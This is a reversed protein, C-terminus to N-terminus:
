TGECDGTSRGAALDGLAAEFAAGEDPEMFLGTLRQGEVEDFSLGSLQECARNFRAIRGDPHLVVVLVGVTDLIESLANREAEDPVLVTAAAGSALVDSMVRTVQEGAM